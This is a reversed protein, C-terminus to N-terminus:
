AGAEAPRWRVGYAFGPVLHRFQEHVEGSSDVTLAAGRVAPDRADDQFAKDLRVVEEPVSAGFRVHLDFLDCPQRPVCVYHPHRLGARFRLAIEHRDNRHLPAPLRLALGVRDSSEMHRGTLVGGHFVDVRLDTEELPRSNSGASTLTLALDLEDIEDADVVVRRFEFAEPVPQDLALAVRLEETHWSRSPGAAAPKTTAVAYEALRDIGEDIRRRVTRDDRELTRAAWSVREGYFPHQAQEHLGFAALLSMRLDGPLAEILALLRDSVKRRVGAADDDASIACVAQLAPGVRETLQAVSLGRGKRLIKLEAVVDTTSM